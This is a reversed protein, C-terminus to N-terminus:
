TCWHMVFWAEGDWVRHGVVLWELLQEPRCDKCNTCYGLTTHSGYPSSTHAFTQSIAGTNERGNHTEKASLTVLQTPTYNCGELWQDTLLNISMCACANSLPQWRPQPFIVWSTLKYAPKPWLFAQRFCSSVGMRTTPLHIKTPTEQLSLDLLPLLMQLLQLGPQVTHVFRLMLCFFLLLDQLLQLQCATQRLLLLMLSCAQVM